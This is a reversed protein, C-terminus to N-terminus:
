IYISAFQFRLQKCVCDVYGQGKTTKEIRLSRCYAILYRNIEWPSRSVFDEVSKIPTFTYGSYIQGKQISECFDFFKAVRKDERYATKKAPDYNTKASSKRNSM